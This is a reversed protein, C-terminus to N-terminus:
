KEIYQFVTNGITFKVGNKLPLQDDKHTDRGDYIMGGEFVKMMPVKRKPDIYLKAQKSPISDSDDWNMQIICYNSRGISVENSGGSENMWKHIAIEGDRKPHKYKLFYKQAITHRAVISVGLGASCLMFSFLVGFAPFYHTTYLILFSIIGAILGGILADTMKITTKFALCFAISLGFLIWPIADIGVTNEYSGTVVCIVSGILFSLFGIFAGLIARLFIAFVVSGKKKRFDNVYSFLFTLAFGLLSGVLLLGSIKQHFATNVDSLIQITGEIEGKLVKDPCFTKLLYDVLSSFLDWQLSIRFAIWIFFGSIMGSMAWKLYYPSKKLNFPQTKDFFYQIGDKCNQGYEVCKYGNAVWCDWHIKHRCRTVILEGKELPENCFTCAEYIVDDDKPEYPKVYKKEFNTLKHIFFPIIVQMIFFAIFLVAVGLIIALYLNDKKVGPGIPNEKSGPVYQIEGVAKEGNDNTIIFQLTLKSGNYVKNSHNVLIVEYDATLNDIFRWLSDVIGAVQNAPYFNGKLQPKRYTTCIEELVKDVLSNEAGYRFVEILVQNSYLEDILRISQDSNDLNDIETSSSFNIKGDTFVLLYKVLDKPDNKIPLPEKAFIEFNDIINKYLDRAELKNVVFEKEFEYFNDKTILRKETAKKDFFSIFATSDPLIEVTERIATKMSEMDADSITQGRDVMFWFVANQSIQEMQMGQKQTIREVIVDKNPPNNGSERIDFNDKTLGSWTIKNNSSKAAIRFRLFLSDANDSWAPKAFYIDIKNNILELTEQSMLNKKEDPNSGAILLFLLPLLFPLFRKKM